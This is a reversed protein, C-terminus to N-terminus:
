TLAWQGVNIALWVLLAAILLTLLSSLVGSFLNQRLWATPRLATSPPALTEITM